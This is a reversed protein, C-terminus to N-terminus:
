LDLESTTKGMCAETSKTKTKKHQQESTERLKFGDNNYIKVIIRTLSYRKKDQIWVSEHLETFLATESM